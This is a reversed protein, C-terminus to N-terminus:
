IFLSNTVMFVKQTAVTRDPEATLETSAINTKICQACKM